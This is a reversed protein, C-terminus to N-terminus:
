RPDGTGDDIATADDVYKARLQHLKAGSLRPVSWALWGDYSVVDAATMAARSPSQHISGDPLEFSGDARIVARYHEGLRPRAFEVPEDAVLIGASLLDAVTVRSGNATIATPGAATTVTGPLTPEHDAEIDVVRRGTQDQYITVPIM